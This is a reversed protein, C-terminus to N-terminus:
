CSPRGEALAIAAKLADIHAKENDCIEALYLRAELMELSRKCAVLLCPAAAILRANAMAEDHGRNVADVECVPKFNRAPVVFIRGPAQVEWPGKSHQM